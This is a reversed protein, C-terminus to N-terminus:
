YLNKSLRKTFGIIDEKDKWSAFNYKFEFPEYGEVVRTVVTHNPYKKKKVFGRTNKLAETREKESIDKGVWVWVGCIGKDM